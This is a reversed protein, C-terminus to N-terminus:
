GGVIKIKSYKEVVEEAQKLKNFSLLLDTLQIISELTHLNNEGYAQVSLSCKKRVVDMYDEYKYQDRLIDSIKNLYDIKVFNILPSNEYIQEYIKFTTEYRKLALKYNGVKQEVDALLIM